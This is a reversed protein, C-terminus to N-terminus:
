AWSPVCPQTDRPRTPRCSYAAVSSMPRILPELVDRLTYRRGCVRVDPHDARVILQQRRGRRLTGLTGGAVRHGDGEAEVTRQPARIARLQEGFGRLHLRSEFREARLRVPYACGM